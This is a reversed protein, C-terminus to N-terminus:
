SKQGAKLYELLLPFHSDPVQLDIMKSILFLEHLFRTSILEYQSHHWIKDTRVRIPNFVNQQLYVQRSKKFKWSARDNKWQELYKIAPHELPYENWYKIQEQEKLV